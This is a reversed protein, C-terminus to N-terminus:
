LRCVLHDPSQLESTHEESRAVAVPNKSEKYSGAKGRYRSPPGIISVMSRRSIHVCEITVTLGSAELAMRVLLRATAKAAKAKPMVAPRPVRYRLDSSRRTPFSHLDSLLASALTLS